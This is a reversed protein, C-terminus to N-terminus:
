CNHECLAYNGSSDCKRDQAIQMDWSRQSVTGHPEAVSFIFACPHGRGQRNVTNFISWADLQDISLEASEDPSGKQWQWKGYLNNPNVPTLDVWYGVRKKSIDFKSEMARRGAMKRITKGALVGGNDICYQKASSL